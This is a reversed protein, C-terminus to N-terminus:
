NICEGGFDGYKFGM